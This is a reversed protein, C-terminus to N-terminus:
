LSERKGPRNSTTGPEATKKLEKGLTKSGTGAVEGGGLQRRGVSTHKSVSKTGEKKKL